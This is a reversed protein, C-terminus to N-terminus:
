DPTAKVLFNTFIQQLIRISIKDSIATIPFINQNLMDHKKKIKPM